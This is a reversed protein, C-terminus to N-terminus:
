SISDFKSYHEANTTISHSSPRNQPKTKSSKYQRMHTLFYGLMSDVWLFLRSRTFFVCLFINFYLRNLLRTFFVSAIRCFITYAKMRYGIETQCVTNTWFM